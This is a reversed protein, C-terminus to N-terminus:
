IKPYPLDMREQYIMFNELVEKKQLEKIVMNQNGSLDHLEGISGEKATGQNGYKSASKGGLFGGNKNMIVIPLLLLFFFMMLQFAKMGKKLQIELSPNGFSLIKPLFIAVIIALIIYIVGVTIEKKTLKKFFNFM